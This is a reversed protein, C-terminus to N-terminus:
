KIKQVLESLKNLADIPTLSNVDIEKLINEVESDKEMYVVEVEKCSNDIWLSLQKSSGNHSLELKRLMIKAENIINKNIWALSAVELWYSKKMGWPVIKRLFVINDENEGVAVSFNKVWKLSKSEDVLEHYHTAFMTKAKINEHNEKLIAWALSM